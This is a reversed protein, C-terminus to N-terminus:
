SPSILYAQIMKKGVNPPAGPPMQTGDDVWLQIWSEIDSAVVASAYEKWIGEISEKLSM